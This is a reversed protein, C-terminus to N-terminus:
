AALLFRRELLDLSARGYMQRKLTKLRNIQGEVQGNSWDLTMAARVADYDALLRKAFRRLAAAAGEQARVLWADLGEPRRERVLAAFERSLSVAEAAAPDLELLQATIATDPQKRLVGWAAARPTLRDARTNSDAQQGAQLKPRPVKEEGGERRLKQLHRALTPYSVTFGQNQLERHLARGNRQGAQWRDAVIQHWPIIRTAASGPKRRVRPLPPAQDRLHRAVTTRGIGVHAAIDEVRWGQRHMTWVADHRKLRRAHREAAFMVRLTAQSTQMTPPEPAASSAEGDDVETRRLAGAHSTLAVELTETLNQLLHFRDAVQVAGPAGHRAGSGYAGARDRSIVEVGPHERLWTALTGAERDPLLALPRHRELDVLVTGYTYRKRQAWDDVGLASPTVISPLPARRVLRLLTNRSAALGVKRGLRAGAAGGLALGVATLRGALRTTKRAWPAALGSLRETFIRRECKKNDCFLRRVRLRAVVGHEGWPLDALTREYWSHTRRARHGCLPCRAPRSRSNLTLAITSPAHEVAWTELRVM